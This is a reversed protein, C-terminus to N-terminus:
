VSIRNVNVNSYGYIDKIKASIENLSFLDLGSILEDLSVSFEKEIDLFLAAMNYPALAVPQGMLDRDPDVKRDGIYLSVIKNLKEFILDYGM